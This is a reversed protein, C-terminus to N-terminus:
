QNNARWKQGRVAQVIVAEDMPFDVFTQTRRRAEMLAQHVFAVVEEGREPPLTLRKELAEVRKLVDGTGPLTEEAQAWAQEFEVEPTRTLPLRLDFRRQLEDELSFTEGCFKQCITQMALAQKSLFTARRPELDLHALMQTLEDATQLLVPAPTPPEAAVQTRWASPDYYYDVLPSYESIIRLAKDIRFALLVYARFWSENMQQEKKNCTLMPGQALVM